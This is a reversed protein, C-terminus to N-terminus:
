FFKTVNKMDITKRENSKDGSADFFDELEIPKNPQYGEVDPHIIKNSLPFMFFDMDRGATAEKLEYLVPQFRKFM